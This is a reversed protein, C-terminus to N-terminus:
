TSWWDAWPSLQTVRSDSYTQLPIEVWAGWQADQVQPRDGYAERRIILTLPPLSQSLVIDVGEEPRDQAVQSECELGAAGTYLRFSLKVMNGDAYRYVYDVQGFVPGKAALRGSWGTLKTEGVPQWHRGKM